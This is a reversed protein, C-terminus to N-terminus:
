NDQTMYISACATMQAFQDHIQLALAIRLGPPRHQVVGARLPFALLSNGPLASRSPILIRRALGATTTSQYKQDSVNRYSGANRRWAHHMCAANPGRAHSSSWLRIRSYFCLNCQHQCFPSRRRGFDRANTGPARPRLTQRARFPLVAHWGGPASYSRGVM